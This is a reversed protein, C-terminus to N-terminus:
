KKPKRAFKKEKNSTSNKFRYSDNGTEIIHCHDLLDEIVQLFFSFCFVGVRQGFAPRGPQGAISGTRSIGSVQSIREIQQAPFGRDPNAKGSPRISATHPPFAPPNQVIKTSDL